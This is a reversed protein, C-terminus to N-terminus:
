AALLRSMVRGVALLAFVTGACAAFVVVGLAAHFWLSNEVRRTTLRQVLGLLRATELPLLLVASAGTLFLRGASGQTRAQTRMRQQLARDVGLVDHRLGAAVAAANGGDDFRGVQDSLTPQGAAPAVSDDLAEAIARLELLTTADRGRTTEIRALADNFRVLRNWDDRLDLRASHTRLIGLGLVLGLVFFWLTPFAVDAATFADDM